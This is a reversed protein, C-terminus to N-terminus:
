RLLWLEVRWLICVWVRLCTSGELRKPEPKIRPKVRRLCGVRPDQYGCGSAPEPGQELGRHDQRDAALYRDAKQPHSDRVARAVKPRHASQAPGYVARDPDAVTHAWA